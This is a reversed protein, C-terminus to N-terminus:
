RLIADIESNIEQSSLLSNRLVNGRGITPFKSLFTLRKKKKREIFDRFEEPSFDKLQASTLGTVVEIQRADHTNKKVFIFFVERVCRIYYFKEFCFIALGIPSQRYQTSVVVFDCKYYDIYLDQSDHSILTNQIVM